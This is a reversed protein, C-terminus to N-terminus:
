LNRFEPMLIGDVGNKHKFEDDFFTCLRSYEWGTFPSYLDYHSLYPLDNSVICAWVDEWTWNHVPYCQPCFRDVTFNFPNRARVKRASSEEMRLGILAVDWGNDKILPHLNGFFGRYWRMYDWRADPHELQSTKSLYLNDEDVGMKLANEEIEKQMSKPMLYSGHNWNWVPIDPEVDLAVKLMAVSDKGGSFALYPKNFKEYAKEVISKAYEYRKKYEKQKSRLQFMKRTRRDM